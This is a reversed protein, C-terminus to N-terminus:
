LINDTDGPNLTEEPEDEGKLWYPEVSFHFHISQEEERTPNLQDVLSYIDMIHESSCNVNMRSMGAKTLAAWPLLIKKGQISLFGGIEIVAYRAQHTEKDILLDRIEAVEKEEEDYVWYGIVNYSVNIDFNVSSATILAM